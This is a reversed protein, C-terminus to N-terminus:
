SSKSREIKELNPDITQTYPITTQDVSSNNITKVPTSQSLKGKVLQKITIAAIILLGLGILLKLVSLSAIIIDCILFVVLLLLTLKILSNKNKPLINKKM